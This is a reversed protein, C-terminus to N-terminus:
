TNTISNFLRRTNLVAFIFQSFIIHMAIGGTALYNRFVEKSYNITFFYDDTIHTYVFIFAIGLLVPIDIFYLQNQMFKKEEISEILNKKDKKTIYYQIIAKTAKLFLYDVILFLAFLSASFYETDKVIESLETENSIDYISYGCLLLCGLLLYFGKKYFSKVEKQNRDSKFASDFIDSLYIFTGIFIIGFSLSILILFPQFTSEIAFLSNLLKPKTVLLIPILIVLVLFQIWFFLINRHPVSKFSFSKYFVNLKNNFSKGLYISPDFEPQHNKKIRTAM